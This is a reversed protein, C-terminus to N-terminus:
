IDLLPLRPFSARYIEDDMTLLTYGRRLAHAGILFDALIRRPGSHRRVKRRAAHAQFARGALRWVSEDMNWDVTVSTEKFFYDLFAETRDPFALLEAYVPAAVILPGRALASDLAATAASNLADNSDWSSVIVNTDIATTM